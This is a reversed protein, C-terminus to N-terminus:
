WNETSSYELVSDGFDKLFDEEKFFRKIKTRPEPDGFIGYILRKLSSATQDTASSQHTYKLVFCGENLDFYYNWTRVAEGWGSKKPGQGGTRLRIQVGTDSFSIRTGVGRRSNVCSAIEELAPRLASFRDTQIKRQEALTQQVQKEAQKKALRESRLKKIIDRKVDELTM